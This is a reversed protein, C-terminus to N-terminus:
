SGPTHTALFLLNKKKKTFCLLTLIKLQNLKLFSTHISPSLGAGSRFILQANLVPEHSLQSASAQVGASVIWEGKIKLACKTNTHKSSSSPPTFLGFSTRNERWWM